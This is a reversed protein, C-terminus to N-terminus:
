KGFVLVYIFRIISCGCLVVVTLHTMEWVFNRMLSFEKQMEQIKKDNISTKNKIIKTSPKFVIARTTSVTKRVYPRKFKINPNPTNVVSIFKLNRNFVRTLNNSM